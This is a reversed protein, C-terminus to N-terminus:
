PIVNFWTASNNYVMGHAAFCLDLGDQLNAGPKFGCVNIVYFKVISTPLCRERRRCMACDFVCALASDHHFVIARDVRGRLSNPKLATKRGRKGREYGQEEEGDDKGKAVACVSTRASNTESRKRVRHDMHSRVNGGAM